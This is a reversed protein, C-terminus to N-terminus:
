VARGELHFANKSVERRNVPESFRSYKFTKGRVKTTEPLEKFIRIPLKHPSERRKGKVCNIILKWFSWINM